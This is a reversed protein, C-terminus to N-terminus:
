PTQSLETLECRFKPRLGMWFPIQHMIAKFDPM